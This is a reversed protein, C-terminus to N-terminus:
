PEDSRLDIAQQVDSFPVGAQWSVAMVDAASGADFVCIGRGARPLFFGGRYRVPGSTATEQTADAIARQAAGYQDRTLGPLDRFVLFVTM